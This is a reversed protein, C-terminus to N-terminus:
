NEIPDDLPSFTSSNNQASHIANAKVRNIFDQDVPLANQIFDDTCNLQILSKVAEWLTEARAEIRGEELIMDYTSMATKNLQTPLKQIFKKVRDSAIESNRFLYALISIVFDGSQQDLYILFVGVGLVERHKFFSYIAIKM